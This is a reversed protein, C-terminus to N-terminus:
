AIQHLYPVDKQYPSLALPLKVTNGDTYGPFRCEISNSQIVSM